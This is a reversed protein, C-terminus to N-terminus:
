HRHGPPGYGDPGRGNPGRGPPGRRDDHRDWRRDDRDHRDHRDHVRHPPASVHRPPPAAHRPPPPRHGRVFPRSWRGNSGVDVFYVPARCADYRGCYRRWNAREYPAAYIYVPALGRAPQVYVPQASVLPPVGGLNGIDIRGFVGPALVGSVSAGIYTQAQVGVGVLLACLTM